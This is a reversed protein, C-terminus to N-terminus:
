IILYGLMKYLNNIIPIINIATPKNLNPFIYYLKLYEGLNIYQLVSWSRYIRDGGTHLANRLM